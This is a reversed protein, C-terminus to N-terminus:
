TKVGCWLLSVMRRWPYVEWPTKEKKDSTYATWFEYLDERLLYIIEKHRWEHMKCAVTNNYLLATNSIM